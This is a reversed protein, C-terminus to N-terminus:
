VAKSIANPNLAKSGGSLLIYPSQTQKQKEQLLALTGLPTDTSSMQKMLVEEQLKKMRKETKNKGSGKGHFKHSLYRFAEKPTLLRGNDDIYELKVDPKYLDREKFDTVPGACYRDRRGYKDDEVFSKDEITYNAAELQSHRPASAMKKSEKELYGKKMALKLAGALGVSVDPEEELIPVDETKVEVPKEDIGVENWGGTYEKSEDELHRRDDLLSADRDFEMLEDVDEDRNGSLGDVYAFISLHIDVDSISL